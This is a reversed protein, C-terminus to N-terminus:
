SPLLVANVDILFMNLLVLLQSEDNSLSRTSCSAIKARIDSWSSRRDAIDEPILEYELPVEVNACFSLALTVSTFTLLSNFSITSLTLLLEILM